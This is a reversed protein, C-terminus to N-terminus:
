PRELKMKGSRRPKSGHEHNEYADVIRTVLPHRVIDAATFRAFGVGDVNQLFQVAQELGQAGEPLDSQSPDATVVM